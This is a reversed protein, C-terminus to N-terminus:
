LLSTSELVPISWNTTFGFLPNGWASAQALHKYMNKTSSTNVSIEFSKGTELCGKTQILNKINIDLEDSM